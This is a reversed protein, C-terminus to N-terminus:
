NHYYKRESIYRQTVEIPLKQRLFHIYLKVSADGRATDPLRCLSPSPPSSCPDHGGGGGGGGGSKRFNCQELSTKRSIPKGTMRWPVWFKKPGPM